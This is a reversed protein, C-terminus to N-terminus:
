SRQGPLSEPAGPMDAFPLAFVSRVSALPDTARRGQDHSRDSCAPDIGIM